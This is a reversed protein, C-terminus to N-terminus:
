HRAQHNSSGPRPRPRVTLTLPHQFCDIGRLPQDTPGGLGVWGRRYVNVCAAQLAQTVICLVAFVLCYSPPM